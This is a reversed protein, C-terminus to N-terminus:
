PSVRGVQEIRIHEKQARTDRQRRKNHPLGTLTPHRDAALWPQKRLKVRIGHQANRSGAALRGGRREDSVHQSGSALV